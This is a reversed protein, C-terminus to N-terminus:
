RVRRVSAVNLGTEGAPIDAFAEVWGTPRGLGQYLPTGVDVEVEIVGDSHHLVDGIDPSSALYVRTQGDRQGIDPTGPIVCDRAAATLRAEPGAHYWTMPGEDPVRIGAERLAEALDADM